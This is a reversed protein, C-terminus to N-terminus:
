TGGTGTRAGAGGLGHTRLDVFWQAVHLELAAREDDTLRAGLAGINLFTPDLGLMSAERRALDTSPEQQQPSPAQATSSQPSGSLTVGLAHLRKVRVKDYDASIGPLLEEVLRGANAAVLLLNEGGPLHKGYLWNYLTKYTVGLRTSFGELNEREEAKLSSLLNQGFPSVNSHKVVDRLM